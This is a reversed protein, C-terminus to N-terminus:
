IYLNNCGLSFWFTEDAAAVCASVVHFACTLPLFLVKEDESDAVTALM